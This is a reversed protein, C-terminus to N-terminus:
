HIQHLGSCALEKDKNPAHADSLTKSQQKSGSPQPFPDRSKWLRFRLMSQVFFRSKKVIM